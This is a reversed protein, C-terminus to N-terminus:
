SNPKFAFNIESMGSAGVTVKAEQEGYREHWAVLTYQGAPLGSIQFKGEKGTVTFFPHDMIHVYGTMWPHLDCQIKIGMESYKFVKSRVESGAPQGMNFARNRQNHSRVNHLLADSNKIQLEQGVQVGQVRPEFMCGQQNLLAPKKATPYKKEKLGKKVYIFVNAMQGQQGIIM